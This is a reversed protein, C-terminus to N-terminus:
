RPRAASAASYPRLAERVADFVMARPENELLGAAIRRHQIPLYQSLVSLPVHVKDLGELLGVVAAAVAPATWYHRCRDLLSFRRALRMSREDGRYYSKWHTPDEVMARDVTAALDSLVAFPRGGALEREVLELAFLAERMAFTLAPGVKLIAIGDAVLARLADAGQYDTSHGEIVIGPMRAAAAVLDAAAARDYAFVTEDGYEVGPQAVVATVRGWAAGLGRRHFAEHCEAVTAELEDVPTVPPGIAADRLVGPPVETGIVYVPPGSAETAFGRGSASWAEEAALALAATREAVLRPDLDRPDRPDGGLPMSSDLHLKQYGARVAEAVLARAKAMAEDAAEARWPHPGLHDGGLVLRDAPLGTEAAIALARSRFDAPRMGTYGGFQNVQNVTSEILAPVGDEIAQIMAAHLVFPHASCVACVGRPEGRKQAEVIGRFFGAVDMGTVTRGRQAWARM